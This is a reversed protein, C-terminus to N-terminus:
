LLATPCRAAGVRVGWPREPNCLPKLYEGWLLAWVNASYKWESPCGGPVCEVNESQEKLWSAVLAEMCCWCKSSYLSTGVAHCLSFNLNVHPSRLSNRSNRYRNARSSFCWGRLSSLRWTALRSAFLAWAFDCPNGFAAPGPTHRESLCPGASAEAMCPSCLILHWPTQQYPHVSLYSMVLTHSLPSLWMKCSESLSLSFEAGAPFALGSIVDLCSTNRGRQCSSCSLSSALMQCM